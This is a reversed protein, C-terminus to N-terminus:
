VELVPVGLVQGHEVVQSEIQRLHVWTKVLNQEQVVVNNHLLIECAEPVDLQIPVDIPCNLRTTGAEMPKVLIQVEGIRENRSVKVWVRTAPGISHVDKIQLLPLLFIDSADVMPPLAHYSLRQGSQTDNKM